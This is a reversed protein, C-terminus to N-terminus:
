LRVCCCNRKWHTVSTEELSCGRGRGTFFLTEGTSVGEMHVVLDGGTFVIGERHVVTEGLSCWKGMGIFLLTERHVVFEGGTFM